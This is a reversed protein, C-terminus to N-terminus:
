PRDWSYLYKTETTTKWKAYLTINKDPYYGNFRQTCASDTYWGDFTYHTYVYEWQGKYWIYGNDVWTSQKTPYKNSVDASAGQYGSISELATGGNSNFSITVVKEESILIWKAYLVKDSRPMTSSNFQTGNNCLETTYWGGFKYTYRMGVSTDVIVKNALTPLTIADGAKGTIDSVTQGGQEEFM